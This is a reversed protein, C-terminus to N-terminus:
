LDFVSESKTLCQNVAPGSNLKSVAFQAKLLIQSCIKEYLKTVMSDSCSNNISSSKFEFEHLLYFQVAFYPEEFFAKVLLLGCNIVKQFWM